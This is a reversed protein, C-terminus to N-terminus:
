APAAPVGDRLAQLRRYAEREDETPQQPVTIRVTLLLDGAAAGRLGPLGKGKLRLTRGSQTGAPITVTLEGGTLTRVSASGGLVAQDDRVPLDALLDRGRPTFRPHPQLRVTLYLDGKPGGGRGPAGEGGVRVKSGEAV